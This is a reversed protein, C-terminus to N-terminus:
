WWQTQLGSHWDTKHEKLELNGKSITTNKKM